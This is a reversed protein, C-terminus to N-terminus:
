EEWIRSLKMADTSLNSLKMILKLIYVMVSAVGIMYIELMSSINILMFLLLAYAVTSMVASYILDCSVYQSLASTSIAAQPTAM